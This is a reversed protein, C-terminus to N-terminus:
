AAKRKTECMGALLERQREPLDQVKRGESVRIERLIRRARLVGVRYQSCVLEFVTMAQCCELRLAEAISLEGRFIRHKAKAREIRVENARELAEIYQPQSV